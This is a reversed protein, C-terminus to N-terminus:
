LNRRCISVSFVDAIIGVPTSKARKSRLLGSSGDVDDDDSIGTVTVEAPPTGAMEVGTVNILLEPDTANAVTAAAADELEPKVDADLRANAPEADAAFLPGALM